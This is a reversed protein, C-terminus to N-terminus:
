LLYFYLFYLKGEEEFCLINNPNNLYESCKLDIPAYPGNKEKKQQFKLEKDHIYKFCSECTNIFILFLPLLCEIRM